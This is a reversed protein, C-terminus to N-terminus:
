IPKFGALFEAGEDSFFRLPSVERECDAARVQVVIVMAAHSVAESSGEGGHDEKSRFFLGAAVCEDAPRSEVKQRFAKITGWHGPSL